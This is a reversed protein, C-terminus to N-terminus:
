HLTKLDNSDLIIELGEYLIDLEEALDKDSTHNAEAAIFGLLAELEDPTYYVTISNSIEDASDFRDTLDPGALTKDKILTCEILILRVLIINSFRMDWNTHEWDSKYGNDKCVPCYWEIVNKKNDLFAYVEGKCPKHRPRRRCRIGTPFSIELVESTAAKVISCLFKAFKRAPGKIDWFEGSDGLFHRLQTFWTNGM